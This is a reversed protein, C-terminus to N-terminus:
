EISDEIRRRDQENQALQLYRRDGDPNKKLWEKERIIFYKLSTDHLSGLTSTSVYNNFTM